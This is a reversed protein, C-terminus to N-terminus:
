VHARGIEVPHALDFVLGAAQWRTAEPLTTITERARDIKGALALCGAKYGVGDIGTPAPRSNLTTEVEVSNCYPKVLAFWTAGTTTAPAPPPDREARAFGPQVGITRTGIALACVAIYAIGLGYPTHKM